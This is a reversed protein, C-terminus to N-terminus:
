INSQYDKGRIERVCTEENAKICEMGFFTLIMIISIAAFLYKNGTQVYIYSLVISIITLAGLTMLIYAVMPKVQFALNRVLFIWFDIFANM